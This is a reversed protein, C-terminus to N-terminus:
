PRGQLSSEGALSNSMFSLKRRRAPRAAVELDLKNWVDIGLALDAANDPSDGVQCLPFPSLLRDAGTFLTEALHALTSDETDSGESHVAPDHVGVIREQLKYAEAALFQVLPQQPPVLERRRLPHSAGELRDLFEARRALDQRELL